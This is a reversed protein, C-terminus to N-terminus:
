FVIAKANNSNEPVSPYAVSGKAWWVILAGCLAGLYQAFLYPIGYKCIKFHGKKSRLMWAITLAPNFQAYSIRGTVVVLYWLTFFAVLADFHLPTSSSERGWVGVESLTLTLLFTGIFEYFIATRNIIDKCM